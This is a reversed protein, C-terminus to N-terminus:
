RKGFIRAPVGVVTAGPPVNHRKPVVCGAGVTARRGIRVPAILVAGVGVFAGDEIVTKSKNKGDYNATITGAGINVRRGVASDGLYTHHKVMTGEGISTRVLEVFNGIEARDSIRVGPRIRAFPGIRCARGIIVDSEIVTNPMVVTDPGIRAGPHIMTTAPDEITVGEAMLGELVREKIRASAQALDLRTNIGIVELPDQALVAEVQKSMASRMISITDTLYYEKKSNDPRVKSLAAFLDECKFCYTGVNIEDIAEERTSADKDESIKVVRGCSDRVIRGYGSPNKVRATLITASSGLSRHREILRAFTQPRILPVDGCTILVDGKISRLFRRASSVADGSGALKKQIAIKTRHGVADKLMDSGYGAVTVTDSVGAEKLADLIYLIVPKGLMDHLVKPVDSKMRTGRGAALVIATIKSM